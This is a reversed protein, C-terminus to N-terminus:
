VLQRFFSLFAGSGWGGNGMDRWLDYVRPLGRIFITGHVSSSGGVVRGRPWCFTRCGLAPVSETEYSWIVDTRRLMQGTGLPARMWFLTDPGGAEVLLVSHEGSESLRSAVVCGSSGAGIVIYDYSTRVDNNAMSM